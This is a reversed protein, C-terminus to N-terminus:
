CVGFIYHMVLHRLCFVAPNLAYVECVTTGEVNEDIWILILIKVLDLDLFVEVHSFLFVSLTYLFIDWQNLVINEDFLTQDFILFNTLLYELKRLISTDFFHEDHLLFQTKFLYLSEKNDLSIIKCKQNSM